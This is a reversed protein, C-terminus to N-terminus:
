ALPQACSVSIRKVKPTQGDKLPEFLQPEKRRVCLSPSLTLSGTLRNRQGNVLVTQRLASVLLKPSRAEESCFTFVLTLSVQESSEPESTWTLWM